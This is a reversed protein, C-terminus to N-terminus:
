FQVPLCGDVFLRRTLTSGLTEDWWERDRNTTAILRKRNRYCHDSFEWLASTQSSFQLNIKDIDDVFWIKYHSYQRFFGEPYGDGEAKAMEAILKRVPFWAFSINQDVYLRRLAMWVARTKATATPGVALPGPFNGDWGAVDDFAAPSVLQHRNLPRMFEEPCMIRFRDLREVEPKYHDPMEVHEPLAEFERKVASIADSLTSAEGKVEKEAKKALWREYDAQMEPTM